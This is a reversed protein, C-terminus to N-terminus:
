SGVLVPFPAVLDLVLPLSWPGWSAVLILIFPVVSGVRDCTRFVEFGRLSMSSFLRFLWGSSPPTMMMEGKVELTTPAGCIIECGTECM